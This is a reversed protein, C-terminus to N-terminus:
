VLCSALQTGVPRGNRITGFCIYYAGLVMSPCASYVHRRRNFFLVWPSCLFHGGPVYKPTWFQGGLFHGGLAPSGPGLSRFGKNPCLLVRPPVLKPAWFRVGRKPSFTKWFDVKQVVRFTAPWPKRRWSCDRGASPDRPSFAMRILM